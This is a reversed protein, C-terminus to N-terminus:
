FGERLWDFHKKKKGLWGEARAINVLDRFMIRDTPTDVWSTDVLQNANMVDVSFLIKGLILDFAQRLTEYEAIQESKFIVRYLDDM